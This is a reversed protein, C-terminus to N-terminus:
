VGTSILLNELDDVQVKSDPPVVTCTFPEKILAPGTIQHGPHLLTRDFLTTQVVEGDFCVDQTGMVAESVPTTARPKQAPKLMEVPVSGFVRVHVIQIEAGEDSHGYERRHQDHFRLEANDLVESTVELRGDAMGELEVSLIADESPRFDASGAGRSEDGVNRTTEAVQMLPVPLSFTQGYYQLDVFYHFEIDSEQHGSAKYADVISQRQEELIATLEDNNISSRRRLITRSRDQRKDVTLMGWASFVSPSAPVIAQKMGLERALTAVHLPGFGGFGALTFDRVDHGKEVTLLRVAGLMINDLVTLMGQAAETVSMGMPGAIRREVAEHAAAANITMRGDLFKGDSIRGLVVQADTATAEQGGRGYCAPGPFAGASKPGMHLVSGEDVWGISGGGAGISVVDVSPLLLPLGWDVVLPSAWRVKGDAVVSIDASTGGADLGVIGDSGILQSVSELAMAGGAPGSRALKVPSASADEISCVGGNSQMISPKHDLGENNMRGSLDDLYRAVRPLVYANAAATSGREFERFEQTLDSSITVFVGPLKENIRKKILQEHEPNAYSHLLCIAVAEINRVRLTEIIDDIEDMDVPDLIEGNWLMREAVEIRNRRPVLPKPPVWKVSYVEERNGRRIELADRHGITTLFAVNAGNRELLINTAITTGHIFDALEEADVGLQRIGDMIGETPNHPTTPVKMTRVDGSKHDYLVLDTFTGGVDTGLRYRAM